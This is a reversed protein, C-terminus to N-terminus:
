HEVYKTTPRPRVMSFRKDYPDFDLKMQSVFPVAIADVLEQTQEVAELPPAPTQPTVPAKGDATGHCGCCCAVRVFAAWM